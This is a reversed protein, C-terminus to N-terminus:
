GGKGPIPKVFKHFAWLGGIGVIAGWVFSRNM